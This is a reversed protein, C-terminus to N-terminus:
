FMTNFDIFFIIKEKEAQKGIFEFLNDFNNFSVSGLMDPALASLVSETMMSLLESEGREVATFSIHKCKHEAIFKNILMTKGIRRRGYLVIMSFGSQKYKKDLIALEKARGRFIKSM